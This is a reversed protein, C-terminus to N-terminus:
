KSVGLAHCFLISNMGLWAEGAEERLCGVAEDLKEAEGGESCMIAYYATVCDPCGSSVKEYGTAQAGMCPVTGGSQVLKYLQM